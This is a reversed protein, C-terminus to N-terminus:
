GLIANRFEADAEFVELDNEDPRKNGYGKVLLRALIKKNDPDLEIARTVADLAGARFSELEPATATGHGETWAYKQGYAAALNVWLDDNKAGDNMEALQKGFKIAFDFGKPPGVFLNAYVLYNYVGEVVDPETTKNIKAKAVQLQWLAKQIVPTPDDRGELMASALGLRAAPDNPTLGVLRTYGKIAEDYQGLIGKAVAWAQIDSAKTLENLPRDVAELAAQKQMPDAKDGRSDPLRIKVASLTARVHYSIVSGEVQGILRSIVLRTTLYGVLFGLIPQELIIAYSDGATLNGGITQSTYTVLQQVAGPLSKVEVLGVGVIIKTLWDSIQDLNTNPLIPLRRSGDQDGAARDSQAAVKPVGFLFGILYGIAFYGLAVVVVVYRRLALTLLLLSVFEILLFWLLINRIRSELRDLEDSDM